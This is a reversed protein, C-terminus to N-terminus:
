AEQESPSGQLGDDSAAPSPRDALSSASCPLTVTATTGEGPVSAIGITGGHREAIAKAMALGLGFGGSQRSRSADARYFREFLHSLHEPAIGAGRDEVTVAVHREGAARCALLVTAGPPSYRIANEILTTWLTELLSAETQVLCHTAIEEQLIVRRQAAVPRLQDCATLLGEGVAVPELARPRDAGEISALALMRGVLMELRDVDELGRELGCRYGSVSPPGGLAVQLSSKQVAVLTKLEHAADGVFTRERDFAGRLRAVLDAIAGALPRLETVAGVEPSPAFSWRRETIHGAEAALAGLPKMGRVVSVWAIGCSCSIWFLAGCLAFLVIHHSTRDFDGVPMAYAVSVTRAPSGSREDDADLVPLAPFLRGRYPGAETGFRIERDAAPSPLKEVPQVSRGIVGDRQDVVLFRDGPALLAPQPAFELRSPHADDVQVMAIVTLVRRLLEAELVAARQRQVYVVVAAACLTTLATQALVLLLLIRGRISRSAAVRKM